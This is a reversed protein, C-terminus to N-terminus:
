LTTTSNTLTSTTITYSYTSDSATVNVVTPSYPGTQLTVPTTATGSSAAYVFNKGGVSYTGTKTGDTPLQLTFVYGLNASGDAAGCAVDIYGDKVISINNGYVQTRVCAATPGTISRQWEITGSSNYKIIIAVFGGSYGTAVVYINDASDRVIDAGWATTSVALLKAWQYTGSSNYKITMIYTNASGWEKYKATAYFNGSSDVVSSYFDTRPYVGCCSAGQGYMGRILTGSTDFSLLMGADDNGRRFSAAILPQSSNDFSIGLARYADASVGPTSIFRAWQRTGSSNLKILYVGYVACPDQIYQVIYTNDSSDIAIQQGGYNASTGVWSYTSTGLAYQALSNGATDFKALFPSGKAVWILPRQSSDLAITIAAGGGATQMNKQWQIVGKSDYKAYVVFSNTYDMGAVYVNGSTDTAVGSGYTYATSTLTAMWYSVPTAASTFGFGKASAAGRTIMMPAM